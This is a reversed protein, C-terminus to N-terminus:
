QCFIDHCNIEKDAYAQIAIARTYAAEYLSVKIYKTAANGTLRNLGSLKKADNNSIGAAKLERIIQTKSRKSMDYGRGITAGSGGSPVHLKRSFHAGKTEKGEVNFTFQGKKM